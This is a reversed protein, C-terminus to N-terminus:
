HAGSKTRLSIKKPIPTSIAIRQMAHRKTEVGTALLAATIKNAMAMMQRATKIIM